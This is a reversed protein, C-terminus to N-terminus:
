GKANRDRVFLVIFVASVLWCSLFIGVYSLRALAANDTTVTDDGISGFPALFFMAAWIIRWHKNHFAAIQSGASPGAPATTPPAVAPPAPSETHTPAAIAATPRFVKSADTKVARSGCNPCQEWKDKATLYRDYNATRRAMRAQGDTWFAGIEDFWRPKNPKPGPKIAYWAYDCRQCRRGSEKPM